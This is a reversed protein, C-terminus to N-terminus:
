ALGRADGEAGAGGNRFDAGGEMRMFQGQKIVRGAKRSQAAQEASEGRQMPCGHWVQRPCQQFGAQLRRQSVRGARDQVAHPYRLRQRVASALAFRRRLELAVKM